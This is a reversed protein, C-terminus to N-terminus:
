CKDSVKGFLCDLGEARQHSSHLWFYNVKYIARRWMVSSVLGCMGLRVHALGCWLMAIWIIFLGDRSLLV